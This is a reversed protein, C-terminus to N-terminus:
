FNSIRFSQCLFSWRWSGLSTDVSIVTAQAMRTVQQAPARAGAGTHGGTWTEAAGSGICSKSVVGSFAVSSLAPSPLGADIHSVQFYSGTGPQLRACGQGNWSSLSYVLPHFIEEGWVERHTVKVKLYFLDKFVLFSFIVHLVHLEANLFFNICHLTGNFWTLWLHLAM